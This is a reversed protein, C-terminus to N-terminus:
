GQLGARARRHFAGQHRVVAPAAHHQAGAAAAQLAADHPAGLEPAHHHARGPQNGPRYSPPATDIAAEGMCILGRQLMARLSKTCSSCCSTAPYGAAPGCTQRTAHESHEWRQVCASPRVHRRICATGCSASQVAINTSCVPQRPMCAARPLWGGAPPHRARLDRWVRLVARVAAPGVRHVYAAVLDARGEAADQDAAAVQRGARGRGLAQRVDQLASRRGRGIRGRHGQCCSARRRRPVQAPRLGEAGVAGRHRAHQERSRRARGREFSQACAQGSAGARGRAGARAPGRGAFAVPALLTSIAPLAIESAALKATRTVSASSTSTRPLLTCAAAQPAPRATPRPAYARASPGAINTSRADFIVNMSLENAAPAAHAAPAAAADTPLPVFVLLMRIMLWHSHDVNQRARCRIISHMPETQMGHAPV